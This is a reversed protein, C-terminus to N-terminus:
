DDVKDFWVGVGHARYEEDLQGRYWSGDDRLLVAGRAAIRACLCFPPILSRARPQILLTIVAVAFARIVSHLVM